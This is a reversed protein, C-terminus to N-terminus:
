GAKVVATYKKRRQELEVQLGQVVGFGHMYLAHRQLARRHYFQEDALDQATLCLGEYPNLRRLTDTTMDTGRQPDAPNRRVPGPHHVGRPEAERPQGPERDAAPRPVRARRVPEPVTRAARTPAHLVDHGRPEAATGIGGEGGAGPAHPVGRASRRAPVAGRGH